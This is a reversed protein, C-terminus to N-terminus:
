KREKKYKTIYREKRTKLDTFLHKSHNWEEFTICQSNDFDQYPLSNLICNSCKRNLCKESYRDCCLIHLLNQHNGFNLIKAKKLATLMLDINAHIVCMCTDRDSLAPPVVWFPRLRCFLAYSIAVSGSKLFNKHLNRLSDLLYRKQKKTNRRTIFEKKGASQRSNSDDEYFELVMEQVRKNITKPKSATKNHGLQKYTLGQTRLRWLKYKDVIKGSVIQQFNRKEQQTKMGSYNEILQAEMIEGFLAKKVLERKENEKEAMLEIKSKPTLTKKLFKKKLRNYKKNQAHMKAKLKRITEDKEKIQKLRLKRKREQRKKAEKLRLSENNANRFDLPVRNEQQIPVDVENDSCPPTTQILYANTRTIMAKRKRYEASHRKWKKRTQRQERPTMDTISKRLGREKKKVYRLQEKKKYEALKAPNNKIEQRRAKEAERKKELAEERSQKKRPPM